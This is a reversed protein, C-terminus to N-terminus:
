PRPSEDSESACSSVPAGRIRPIRLRARVTEVDAPVGYKKLRQKTVSEVAISSIDIGAWKRRLRHAALVATGAGCFPDLVLDGEASSAQVIRRLLALPKQTPYGESEKSNGKVVPLRWVDEPIKGAAASNGGLYNRGGLVRVREYRAKSAERIPTRIADANFTWESPNRSYWLIVDHKKPFCSRPRGPSDDYFWVIENRFCSAGFLADMVIKLYHSAGPDCHLYLSGTDKLLRRCEMLREAMYSLYALMGSPGLFVELGAMARRVPEAKESRLTRVREAAPEDWHWTDSFAVFQTTGGNGGRGNGGKGLRIGYDTRSHFPPDLYILEVQEPSWERMVELCDGCYLTSARIPHPVPAM